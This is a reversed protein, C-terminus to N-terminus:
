GPLLIYRQILNNENCYINMPCIHELIYVKLVIISMYFFDELVISDTIVLMETSLVPICGAFVM